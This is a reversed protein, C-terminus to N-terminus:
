RRTRKRKTRASRMRANRARSPESSTRSITAPKLPLTRSMLTRARAQMTSSRSSRAVKTSSASSPQDHTLTKSPTTSESSQCLREWKDLIVRTAAALAILLETRTKPDREHHLARLIESRRLVNAMRATPICRACTTSRDRRSTSTSDPIADARNCTLAQALLAPEM